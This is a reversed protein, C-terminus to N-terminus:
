LLYIFLVINFFNRLESTFLLLTRLHLETWSSDWYATSVETSRYVISLVTQLSITVIIYIASLKMISESLSKHNCLTPLSLWDAIASSTSVTAWGPSLHEATPPHVLWLVSANHVIPTCPRAHHLGRLSLVTSDYTIIIIIIIIVSNTRAFCILFLSHFMRIVCHSSQLKGFIWM